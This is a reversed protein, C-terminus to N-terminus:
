RRALWGALTCAAFGVYLVFIWFIISCLVFIFFTFSITTELQKWEKTCEVTQSQGAYVSITTNMHTQMDSCETTTDLICRYLHISYAKSSPSFFCGFLVSEGFWSHSHALCHFFFVLDLFCRWSCLWCCDAVVAVINNFYENIWRFGSYKATQMHMICLMFRGTHEGM